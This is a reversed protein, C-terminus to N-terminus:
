KFLKEFTNPGVIGDRSIGVNSQFQRVARTTGGGFIGEIGNTNYGKCYLMAQITKTINGRAGQKVIICSRKTAPGFIGDVSLKANFQLNLELQLAKVLASKTEIGYYGDEKINLKYQSNLWSQVNRINDDGSYVPKYIPKEIENSNNSDDEYMINLDVYGNVGEVYGRSTYQWINHNGKYKNKEQLNGDNSGYSAIWIEEDTFKSMDLENKAWYASCYIGARYGAKKIVECFALAVNTLEETSLGQVSSDEIDYFIPLDLSKGNLYKLCNNAEKKANEETKAYQYYYAGVPIKNYLNDYHEEFMSDKQKDPLYSVGYGVRIIVFSQNDIVKKYDINKQFCSIDIGYKM